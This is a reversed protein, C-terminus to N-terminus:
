STPRPNTDDYGALKLGERLAWLEASLSSTFGVNRYFGLLWNGLEDRFVGGAGAEGPNANASGDTNLKIFGAPPPNWSVLVVSLSKTISSAPHLQNYENIKKLIFDRAMAISFKKREHVLQNRFYWLSWIIYSFSTSWKRYDSLNSHTSHAYLWGDFDLNQYRTNITNPTLLYWLLKAFFCDRFIHNITEPAQHCRPCINSDVIGWNFLTDYTLLRDHKLLWLFFQIRPLTDMRWVWSWSCNSLLPLNRALYYASKSKFLGNGSFGWIFTDSGVSSYQLPIAKLRNVIDTPLSYSILDWNWEGSPLLADRVSIHSSDIKHPGYIMSGLSDNGVWKDYWFSVKDGTRPIWKIGRDIIHKGKKINKIVPSTKDLSCNPSVINFKDRFAKAWVNDKETLMRWHVKAMAVQNAEKSSRIGLGGFKKPHTIKEWSVLNARRKQPTSGWLFQRSLRDLEEHTAAPFFMGQMYYNPISSLVSSILTTRGALSLMSAKWGSLKKRVKDVIFNCDSKSIRKPTMPVGLYKGLHDTKSVFLITCIDNKVSEPTNVSFLIKSKDLNVKEGSRICFFLLVEKLFIANAKSAKGIFVLDDAFFLHSLIPGRRGLKSGKWLGSNIGGQLKLSLYEICLIFLYPSLPDGQRLGRSPHFQEGVGGNVIVAFVSSSICSMILDILSPPFNFFLLAERIFGWELRDYAKDLDLKVIMDGVRGKRKSFSHVMERLILVNDMGSRGSIFSAQFPSILNGIKNKLRLVILKTVIKYVVNCLGIPRFQSVMESNPIKPILAILSQSWTDPMVGNSFALRVEACLKSKILDWFKQFFGVHLGDPGPAKWSKMSKVALWIEADSPPAILFEWESYDIIPGRVIDKFSDHFSHDLSSTYLDKFYSLVINHIGEPDYSWNGHLDKLGMIRNYSRRKITSVHFFKTNRDGDLIWQTRSKLFWLDEEYKLLLQYEQTLEKELNLLFHSNKFQLAKQTGVLRALIEKKKKHINDFNARSWLRVSSKFQTSCESISLNSHTWESAVLDKFSEHDLWFKEIRFPKDGITPISPQLSLLIPCHDSSLRPLHFVTAEPFKVRWSPNGWARDLRERILQNASRKNVWTFKPGNFGLDMLNCFSMCDTYARIRHSPVPNGGFKESQATIDNFDGIALWPGNITQSFERLNDWLLCRIDFQPRAYIASLFWTFDTFWPHSIVKVLAHIVQPGKSLIDVSFCSDNWLFWIGGAYGDADVLEWKPLGLSRAVEVAKDGALKTEMIIFIGPNHERIIEKANRKFDDNAAGRCNWSLVKMSWAISSFSNMVWRGLEQNWRVSDSLRSKILMNVEPFYFPLATQIYRAKRCCPAEERRVILHVAKMSGLLSMKNLFWSCEPIWVIQPSIQEEWFEWGLREGTSSWTARSTLCMDPAQLARPPPLHPTPDIGTQVVVPRIWNKTVTDRDWGEVPTSDKELLLSLAKKMSLINNENNVLYIDWLRCLKVFSGPDMAWVEVPPPLHLNYVRSMSDRPLGHSDQLMIPNSNTHSPSTENPSIQKVSPELGQGQVQAMLGNTVISGNINVNPGNLAKDRSPNTTEDCQKSGGRSETLQSSPNGGHFSNPNSQQNTSNDVKGNSKRRNRRREVLMWPGFGQHEEIVPSDGTNIDPSKISNPSDEEM